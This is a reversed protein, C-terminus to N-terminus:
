FLKPSVSWVSSRKLAISSAYSSLGLTHSVIVGSSRMIAKKKMCSAAEEAMSKTIRRNM